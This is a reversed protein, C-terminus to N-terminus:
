QTLEDEVDDWGVDPQKSGVQQGANQYKHQEGITYGAGAGLMVAPDNALFEPFGTGGAYEWADMFGLMGGAVKAASEADPGTMDEGKRYDDGVIGARTAGYMAAGFLGAKVLQRTAYDGVDM